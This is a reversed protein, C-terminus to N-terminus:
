RRCRWASRKSCLVQAAAEAGPVHYADLWADCARDSGSAILRHLVSTFV